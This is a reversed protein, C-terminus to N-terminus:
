KAEMTNGVVEFTKPNMDHDTLLSQGFSWAAYGDDWKVEGRETNRDGHEFKTVFQVIDGEYIDRGTKDLLGTFQMVIGDTKENWPNADFYVEQLVGDGPFLMRGNQWVRFKIVRNTMSFLTDRSVPITLISRSGM